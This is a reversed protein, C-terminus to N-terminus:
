VVLANCDLQLCIEEIKGRDTEGIQIHSCRNDILTIAQHIDLNKLEYVADLSSGAVGARRSSVLVRTNEGFTLYHKIDDECWADDLVVLMHRNKLKSAIANKIAEVDIGVPPEDGLDRLVSMLNGLHNPDTGLGIWLTGDPIINQRNQSESFETLLTTKGSGPPGHVLLNKNNHFLVSLQACESERSVHHAPLKSSTTRLTDERLDFAHPQKSLKPLKSKLEQSVISSPVAWGGINARRDRTNSIVGCVAATRLNVLAGGSFGNLIHAHKFKFEKGVVGHEKWLITEGEFTGTVTDKTQMGDYKPFGVGILRDGIVPPESDLPLNNDSVYITELLAIDYEHNVSVVRSTKRTIDGSKRWINFDIKDGLKANKINHACTVIINKSIFFGTGLSKGLVQCSVESVSDQAAELFSATNSTM